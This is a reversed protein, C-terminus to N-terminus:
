KISEILCERCADCASSDRYNAQLRTNTMTRRFHARQSGFVASCPPRILRFREFLEFSWNFSIFFFAPFCHFNFSLLHFRVIFRRIGTQVGTANGVLWKSLTVKNIRRDSSSPWISVQVTNLLGCCTLEVPGSGFLGGFRNSSSRKHYAKLKFTKLSFPLNWVSWCGNQLTGRFTETFGNWRLFECM